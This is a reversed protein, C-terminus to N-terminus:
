PESQWGQSTTRSGGTIFLRRSRTAMGALRALEDPELSCLLRMDEQLLDELRDRIQEWMVALREFNGAAAVMEGSRLEDLFAVAGITRLVGRITHIAVRAQQSNRAALAEDVSHLLGPLEGACATVIRHYLSWDGSVNSLAADLNIYKLAATKQQLERQDAGAAAVSPGGSEGDTKEIVSVLRVPPVPKTLFASVGIARADERVAGECHGTIAVIRAPPRDLERELERLRRALALGSGDPLELDLVVADFRERAFLEFAAHVTGVATVRHGRESLVTELLTRNVASDEVLLVSLKQRPREFAPESVDFAKTTVADIALVLEDPTVPKTLFVTRSRVDTFESSKAMPDTVIVAPIESEILFGLRKDRRLPGHAEVVAVDAQDATRGPEIVRCGWRTFLRALVDRWEDCHTVVAVTRVRGSWPPSRVLRSCALSQVPLEVHFALGHPKRKEVWVRGGMAEVSRRVITLGLGTGPEKAAGDRGRVFPEFLKPLLEDPVGPGTDEVTIALRVNEGVQGRVGARVAVYGEETYKVGNSVLNVVIQRLLSEDTKVLEPVDPELDLLLELGKDKARIALLRVWDGLRVRLPVLNPSVELARAEIRAYDLVNEILDMLAHSANELMRVCSEERQGLGSQSLMEVVASITQIPTRIEHSIRSIFESKAANAAEARAQAERMAEEIQRRWEVEEQLRRNAEELEATREHVLRRIRENQGVVMYVYSSSLFACALGFGWVWWAVPPVDEGPVASAYWLQVQLTEIRIPRSRWVATEPIEGASVEQGQLRLRLAVRGTSVSRAARALAENLDVVVGVLGVQPATTPEGRARAPGCYCMYVRGQNVLSNVAVADARDSRQGREAALRLPLEPDLTTAARAGADHDLLVWYAREYNPQAADSGGRLPLWFCAVVEDVRGGIKSAFALFEDEEVSVSAAFLAQLARVLERHVLFQRRLAQAAEEGIRTERAHRRLTLAFQAHMAAYATLLFLVLFTLGAVIFSRRVIM